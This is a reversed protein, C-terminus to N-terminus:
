NASTTGTKWRAGDSAEEGSRGILDAAKNSGAIEILHQARVSHEKHNHNQVDPTQSELTKQVRRATQNM